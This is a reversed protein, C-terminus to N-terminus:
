SELSIEIIRDQISFNLRKIVGGNTNPEGSNDFNLEDYKIQLGGKTGGRIVKDLSLNSISSSAPKDSLLLTHLKKENESKILAVEFLTDNIFEEFEIDGKRFAKYKMLDYTLEQKKM